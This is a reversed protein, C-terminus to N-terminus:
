RAGPSAAPPETAIVIQLAHEERFGQKLLAEFLNRKFVAIRIASEPRVASRLQGEIVAETLPGASAVMAATTAQMLQKMQEPSTGPCLTAPPAAFGGSCLTAAMLGAILKRTHNMPM